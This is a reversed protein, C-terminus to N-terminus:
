LDAWLGSNKERLELYGDGEPRYRFKDIEVQLEDCFKLRALRKRSKFIKKLYLIEQLQLSPVEIPFNELETRNVIQSYYLKRMEDDNGRLSYFLYNTTIM